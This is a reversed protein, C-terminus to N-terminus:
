EGRRGTRQWLYLCLHKSALSRSRLSVTSTPSPSTAGRQALSCTAVNQTGNNKSNSRTSFLFPRPPISNSVARGSKRERERRGGLFGGQRGRPLSLFLFFRFFSPFFFVCAPSVSLDDPFMLPVNRGSFGSLFIIITLEMNRGIADGRGRGEM